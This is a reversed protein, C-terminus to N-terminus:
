AKALGDERIIFPEFAARHDPPVLVKLVAKNGNYDRELVQGVEHLRAIVESQSHPVSLVLLDRVPRLQKGLEAMFAEFGEGSRASVVISNPYEDTLRRALGPATVRDIKNFVMLMPKDAVGLEDLVVNVAEIQEEAQPSSIDVVHLLLDAEIVEELTAKFADVLDHPLKRIFGVTDSLLVNQNTPLRLRRTTPDLTAFLKDESLASAGTIANFLTSKGANTYGVLSGLPWQNRKRGTRQITRHRMVMELDRQIKDIRERVKRRDVELQSEGEGGRMGIGGKQRSLHTWFRTLRPLLHNLQALEVQLKGERTRARQSFIDLILATRDLIKCEFVKELNRGQAPTLEEDFVVTDVGAEECQEAFERAKGPGIFTAANVRDLRQTGRGTVEGGATGVLEELEDLSEDIRWTDHGKLQVGVIFVRETERNIIDVLGKM